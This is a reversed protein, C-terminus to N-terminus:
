KGGEGVVKVGAWAGLVGGIAAFLPDNIDTVRTGVFLQLLEIIM